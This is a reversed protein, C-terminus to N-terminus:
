KPKLVLKRERKISNRKLIEQLSNFNLEANLEKIKDSHLPHSIHEIFYFFVKM